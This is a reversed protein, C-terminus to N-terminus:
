ERCGYRLLRQQHKFLFENYLRCQGIEKQRNTDYQNKFEWNFQYTEPLNKAAKKGSGMIPNASPARTSTTTRKISDKSTKSKEEKPKGTTADDITKETKNTVLEETKKLVAKEAAQEAKKKIKRLLQADATYSISLCCLLLLIHKAKM